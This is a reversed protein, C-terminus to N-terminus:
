NLDRFVRLLVYWIVTLGAFLFRPTTITSVVSLRSCHETCREDSVYWSSLETGSERCLSRSFMTILNLCSIM